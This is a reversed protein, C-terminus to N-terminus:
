APVKLYATSSVQGAEATGTVPARSFVLYAHLGGLTSPDLGAISVTIVADARAAQGHFTSRTLENYIVAIATDTGEGTAADFTVSVDAGSVVAAAIGPNFLPGDFIRLTAPDWALDDFLEKNIQVMRNYATFTRPRPFTFPKLVGEYIAKAIHAINQFITRVAVQGETKPNSPPTFTKIYDKGRWSSGVFQGVRGKISGRVFNLTAM